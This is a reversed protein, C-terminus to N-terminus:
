CIFLGRRLELDELKPITPGSRKGSPQSKAIADPLTPGFEDGSSQDEDERREYVPSGRRGM